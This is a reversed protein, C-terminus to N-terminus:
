LGPTALRRALSRAAAREAASLQRELAASAARAGAHGNEAALSYWAYARVRDLRIGDHPSAYLRGLGYQSSPEGQKAALLFWQEASRYNQAAGASYRYVGLNYQAQAHGQEAALRFLKVAMPVNRPVGDGKMLLNGLTFQALPYGADASRGYWFIAQDVDRPMGRGTKYMTAIVYQAEAHDNEAATLYHPAAAAVRGERALSMGEQFATRALAPDPEFPAPPEIEASGGAACGALLGILLIVAPLRGPRPAIIMTTAIDTEPRDLKGEDRRRPWLHTRLKYRPKVM